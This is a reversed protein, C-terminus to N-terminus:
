KFHIIPQTRTSRVNKSNKRTKSQSLRKKIKGRKKKSLTSSRTFHKQKRNHIHISHNSEIQKQKRMENTKRTMWLSNKSMLSMSLKISKKYENGAFNSEIVNAKGKNKREEHRQRKKEKDGEM